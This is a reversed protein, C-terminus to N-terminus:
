NRGLSREPLPTAQLCVHVNGASATLMVVLLRAEPGPLPATGVVHALVSRAHDWQAGGTLLRPVVPANSDPEASSTALVSHQQHQLCAATPPRSPANPM